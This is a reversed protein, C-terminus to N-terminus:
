VVDSEPLRQERLLSYNSLTSVLCPDANSPTQAEDMMRHELSYLTEPVPDTKM